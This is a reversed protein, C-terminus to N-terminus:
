AAWQGVETEYYAYQHDRDVPKLGLRRCYVRVAPLRLPAAAVMKLARHDTFLRGIAQKGFTVANAGRSGAVAFVHGDWVGDEKPVFFLLCGKDDAYGVAGDRMLGYCSLREDGEQVTPRVTPHNIIADILIHSARVLM